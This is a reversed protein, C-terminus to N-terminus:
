SQTCTFFIYKVPKVPLRIEMTSDSSQAGDADFDPVFTSVKESM